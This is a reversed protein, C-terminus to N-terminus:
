EKNKIGTKIGNLMAMIELLLNDARKTDTQSVAGLLDLYTSMKMGANEALNLFRTQDRHSFRGNGEAINLVLTTCTRDLRHVYKKRLGSASFVNTELDSYLELARQFVHLKEHSFYISDEIIYSEEMEAQRDNWSKRLGITLRAIDQLKRKGKHLISSAILDKIRALDLCAASELVSGLSCELLYIGRDSYSKLVSKALNALISDTADDLHKRISVKSPWEELIPLAIRAFELSKQYADLKKHPFYKTM